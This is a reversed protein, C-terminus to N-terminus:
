TSEILEAKRHLLQTLKLIRNLRGEGRGDSLCRNKLCAM